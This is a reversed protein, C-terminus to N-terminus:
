IPGPKQLAPAPDRSAARLSASSVPLFQGVRAESPSIDSFKNYEAIEERSRRQLKVKEGKV